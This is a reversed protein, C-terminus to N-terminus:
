QMAILNGNKLRKFYKGYIANPSNFFQFANLVKGHKVYAYM